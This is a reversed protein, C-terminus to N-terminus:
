RWRRLGAGTAAWPRTIADPAPDNRLVLVDLEDISIREAIAKKGQIDKLYGETTKYKKKPAKRARARISEDPDYALKVM